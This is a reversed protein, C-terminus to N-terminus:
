PTWSVTAVYAGTNDTFGNDNVAFELFGGVPATLVTPGSGVLQWPGPGVRALLGIASVGPALCDGPCPVGDGDPGVDAGFGRNVLGTATITVQQGAALTGGYVRIPKPVLYADLLDGGAAGIVNVAFAPTGGVTLAFTGNMAYSGDGHSGRLRFGFTDGAQVTVTTAGSYGFGGSPPVCCVYPGVNVLPQVFVDTGGRNVFLDLGTTVQFWSHFGNWAYTLNVTESAAAVRSLSWAGTYVGNNVYTISPTGTTGDDVLTVIGDGAASWPGPPTAVDFPASTGAAM